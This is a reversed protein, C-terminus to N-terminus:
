PEIEKENRGHTDMMRFQFRGSGMADQLAGIKFVAESPTLFLAYGAGRALFKVQSDTQGRNQEFALPLRGYGSAVTADAAHIPTKATAPTLLLTSSALAAAVWCGLRAPERQHAGRLRYRRPAVTTAAPLGQAPRKTIFPLIVSLMLAAAIIPLMGAFSGTMDRARAAVIPGILGACGWASLILGYNLGMFKTGLCAANFSPMTGFGGGCCLLIVAVAALAPMLEHVNALLLLTVAQIVFLAAFTRNCGIRDSIAGWLPRGLANFITVLGFLPAIAAASMKTLDSLICVANSIITIGAIVNVFLQLWLLYFQPTALAQSPSYGGGASAVATRGRCPASYGDPPNRFLSAATLGVILFVLGSAIFVHMVAGVDAPTFTQAATLTTPDFATGAAKAATRAALFGGAHVAAAHFGRLRPIWQNYIFAGLGFGGVVLGGALGKRDPFWKTVMSVPTIYAMGAGIGGLIGYSVYLWPAGFVPTGLGAFVNGSGWLAIGVMAVTRPGVKDQWFGGIVAGVAALSFNAIAYTWTTTTLDWGYAVLLPQTFIAWSYIAGITLMVMAGAGAILWRNPKPVIRM